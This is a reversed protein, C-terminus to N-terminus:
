ADRRLAQSVKEHWRFSTLDRDKLCECRKSEGCWYLHYPPLNLWRRRRKVRGFVSRLSPEITRRVQYAMFEGEEKLLWAADDMIKARDSKELASFPLGSLIYDVRGFAEEGLIALATTASGTHVTLRRDEITERLHVALGEESEIAILQASSPLHELIYRTFEGTGPGYEVFLRTSAWDVNELQRVITGPSTAIPSGVSLRAKAFERLFKAWAAM